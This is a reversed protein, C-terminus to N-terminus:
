RKGSIDICFEKCEKKTPFRRYGKVDYNSDNENFVCAVECRKFRAKMLDESSFLFLGVILLFVVSLVVLIEKVEKKKM